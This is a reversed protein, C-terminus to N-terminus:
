DKNSCVGATKSQIKKQSLLNSFAQKAREFTPGDENLVRHFNWITAKNCGGAAAIKCKGTFQRLVNWKNTSIFSLQIVEEKTLEEKKLALCIRRMALFRSATESTYNNQCGLRCVTTLEGSLVTLFLFKCFCPM